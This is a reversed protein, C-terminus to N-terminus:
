PLAHLYQGLMEPTILTVGKDTVHFRRRDENRDVGVVCGPPIRCYKDVVVRRLVAGAGVQVNPLLVSEEVLAADDVRVNSSLLSRRVLAGSVICGSAVLSDPAMGRRDDDDFVFKAPPTQEQYTWIPWERDYLNLDPVVQTLELNAQWFADVTGVDRWYPRGRAMNVCSNRFNHAHVRRGEAVLAPIVDRGFDHRSGSAAADRSLSSYLLGADFVYIGMSVLVADTRGPMPRPQAPKEDFRVIWGDRDVEVVGFASAEALPVEICAVSVEAGSDVHEALM